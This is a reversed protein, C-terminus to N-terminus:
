SPLPKMKFGIPQTFEKVLVTATMRHNQNMSSGLFILDPRDDTETESYLITRTHDDLYYYTQIQKTM